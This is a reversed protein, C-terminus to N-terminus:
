DDDRGQRRETMTAAKADSDHADPAPPRPPDPKGEKYNDDVHRVCDGKNARQEALYQFLKVGTNGTNDAVRLQSLNPLQAM